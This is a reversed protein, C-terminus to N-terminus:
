STLSCIKTIGPQGDVAPIMMATEDFPTPLFGSYGESRLLQIARPNGKQAALRVWREAASKDGNADLTLSLALNMMANSHGLLAAQEWLSRAEAVDQKLYEGKYVMVALNNMARTNGHAVANCFWHVAMEPNQAVGTGYLYKYGLANMGEGDGQAASM